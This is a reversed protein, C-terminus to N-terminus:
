QQRLHLIPLIVKMQILVEKANNSEDDRRTHELSKDIKTTSIPIKNVFREKSQKRNLKDVHHNFSFFPFLRIYYNFM